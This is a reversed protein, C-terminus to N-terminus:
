GFTKTMLANVEKKITETAFRIAFSKLTIMVKVYEDNIRINLDVQDGVLEIYPGRESNAWRGNPLKLIGAYKRKLDDLMATVLEKAKDPTTGHKQEFTLEAM